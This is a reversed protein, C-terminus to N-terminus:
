ELLLHAIDSKRRHIQRLPQRQRDFSKTRFSSRHVSPDALGFFLRDGGATFDRPPQGVIDDHVKDAVKAGALRKQRSRDRRFQSGVRALHRRRGEGDDVFVWPQAALRDNVDVPIAERLPWALPHLDADRLQEGTGAYLQDLPRLALKGIELLPMDLNANGPFLVSAACDLQMVCLSRPGCTVGLTLSPGPPAPPACFRVIACRSGARRAATATHPRAAPMANAVSAIRSGGAPCIGEASEMM